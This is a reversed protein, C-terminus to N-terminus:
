EMDRLLTIIPWLGPKWLDPLAEPRGAAALCGHPCGERDAQQTGRPRPLVEAAEPGKGREVLHQLLKRRRKRVPRFGM